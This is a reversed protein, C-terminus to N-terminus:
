EAKNDTTEQARKAEVKAKAEAFVEHLKKLKEPNMRHDLVEKLSKPTNHKMREKRAKSAKEFMEKFNRKEM